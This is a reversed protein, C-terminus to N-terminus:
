SRNSRRSAAAIKRRRWRVDHKAHKRRARRPALRDFLFLEDLTQRLKVSSGLDTEQRAAPQDLQPEPRGSM